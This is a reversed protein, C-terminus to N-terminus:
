KGEEYQEGFWQEDMWDEDVDCRAITATYGNPLMTM